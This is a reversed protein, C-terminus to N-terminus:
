ARCRASPPMAASPKRRPWNTPTACRPTGTTASCTTAAARGVRDARGVAFPALECLRRPLRPQQRRLFAVAAGVRRRRRLQHHAPRGRVGRSRLAARARRAKPTSRGRTSCISTASRGRRAHGPRRRRAPRRRTRPPSARSTTPPACRRSWRRARFTPPAPTAAASARHLGDRGDVQRPQARRERGRGQAGLGVPRRRRSVEVAADSAGLRARWRWCTRSSRSSSSAAHLRLRPIDHAAAHPSDAHTTPDHLAARRPAALPASHYRRWRRREAGHKAGAGRGGVGDSAWRRGDFRRRSASASAGARASCSGASAAVQVLQLLEALREDRQGVVPEGRQRHGFRQEVRDRSHLRVRECSPLRRWICYM